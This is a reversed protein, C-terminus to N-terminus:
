AARKSARKGLIAKLLDPQDLTKELKRAVGRRARKPLLRLLGALSDGVRQVSFGTSLYWGKKSSLAHLESEAILGQSAFLAALEYGFDYCEELACLLLVKLVKDRSLDRLGGVSALAVYDKLWVAECWLIQEKGSPSQAFPGRRAVRHRTNIDFLLFGRARMFQDMEAYTTEGRYSEVFGTETEVYFARDLWHGSNALIPLEMGQTDIKIVDADLDHLENIDL